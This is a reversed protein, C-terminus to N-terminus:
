GLRTELCLHRDDKIVGEGIKGPSGLVKRLEGKWIFSILPAHRFEFGVARSSNRLLFNDARWVSILWGVAIDQADLVRLSPLSKLLARGPNDFWSCWWRLRLGGGSSPQQWLLALVFRFANFRVGSRAFDHLQASPACCRLLASDFLEKMSPDVLELRAGPKTGSIGRDDATGNTGIGEEGLFVRISGPWSASHARKAASFRLARVGAGSVGM